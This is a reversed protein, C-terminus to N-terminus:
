PHALVPEAADKLVRRLMLGAIIEFIGMIIFWIGLLVALFTLSSAPTVTVVIGAILSVAGFAIWWAKGERVDGAIGGILATLGQVIWTIGIVLGVIARTLHLHRILLVGVVVFMLGTIGLWVRHQEDRSFVRLLHFIGSLIMLVGLLVAVVNLSGTPHFSVVLGLILTLVGLILTPQWGSDLVSSPPQAGYDDSSM